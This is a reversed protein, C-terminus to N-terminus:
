KETKLKIWMNKQEKSFNQVQQQKTQKNKTQKQKTPKKKNKKKLTQSVLHFGKDMLPTFPLELPLKRPHKHKPTVSSFYFTHYLKSETMNYSITYICFSTDAHGPWSYFDTCTSAWNKICNKSLGNEIIKRKVM